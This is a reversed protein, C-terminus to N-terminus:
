AKGRRNGLEFRRKRFEGIRHVPCRQCHFSGLPFDDADGSPRFVPSGFYEGLGLFRSKGCFFGGFRLPVIQEVAHGSHRSIGFYQRPIETLTEYEFPSEGEMFYRVRGSFFKEAEDVDVSLKEFSRVSLDELEGFSGMKRRSSGDDAGFVSGVGQQVPVSFPDESGFFAKQGDTMQAIGLLDDLGTVFNEADDVKGSGFGAPVAKQLVFDYRLVIENGIRLLPMGDANRFFEGLVSSPLGFTEYYGVRFAASLFGTPFQIVLEDIMKGVFTERGGHGLGKGISALFPHDYTTVSLGEFSDFDSDNGVIRSRRELAKTLGAQLPLELRRRNEMAVLAPNDFREYPVM